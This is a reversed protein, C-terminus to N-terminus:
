LIKILVKEVEMFSVIEEVFIVEVVEWKDYERGVLKIGYFIFILEYVVVYFCIVVGDGYVLYKVCLGVGFVESM